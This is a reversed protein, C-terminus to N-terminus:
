GDGGEERESGPPMPAPPTSVLLSLVSRLGMGVKVGEPRDGYRGELRAGRMGEGGEERLNGPLSQRRKNIKLFVCLKSRRLQYAFGFLILTVEPVLNRKM